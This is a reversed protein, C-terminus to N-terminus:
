GWTDDDWSMEDWSGSNEAPTGPDVPPTQGPELCRVNIDIVNAAVITGANNTSLFYCSVDTPTGTIQVAYADGDNLETIFSYSGNATIFLVDDGNNTLVLTGFTLGSIAGGVTYTVDSPTHTQTGGDGEPACGLVLMLLPSAVAWIIGNVREM